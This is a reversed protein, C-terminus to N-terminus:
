LFCIKGFDEKSKQSYSERYSRKNKKQVKSRRNEFNEPENQISKDAIQIQMQSTNQKESLIKSANFM